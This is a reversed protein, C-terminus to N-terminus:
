KKKKKLLQKLASDIAQEANENSYIVINLPVDRIILTVKSNKFLDNIETMHFDITKKYALFERKLDKEIDKANKPM